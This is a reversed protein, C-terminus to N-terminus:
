QQVSKQAMRSLQWADALDQVGVWLTQAEAQVQVVAEGALDGLVREDQEVGGYAEVVEQAPAQDRVLARATGIVALQAPLDMDDTIGLVLKSAGLYARFGPISLSRM